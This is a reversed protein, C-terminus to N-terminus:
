RIFHSKFIYISRIFFFWIYSNNFIKWLIKKWLCLFLYSYTNSRLTVIILKVYFNLSFFFSINIRYNKYRTRLKFNFILNKLIYYFKWIKLFAINFFVFRAVKKVYWSKLINLIFNRLVIIININTWCTVLKKICRTVQIVYAQYIKLHDIRGQLIYRRNWFAEISPM